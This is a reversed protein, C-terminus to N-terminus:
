YLKELSYFLSAIFRHITSMTFLSLALKRANKAVRQIENDHEWCWALIEELDSLDSKVEIYNAVDLNELTIRNLSELQSSYWLQYGYQSKVKLICNGNMLENSLNLSSSFGDIHIVVKYQGVVVNNEKQEALPVAQPRTMVNNYIHDLNQNWETIEVDLSLNDNMKMENSMRYLKLRPNTEVTTGPGDMPGYSRFLM